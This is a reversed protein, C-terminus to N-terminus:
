TRTNYRACGAGGASDTEGDEKDADELEREIDSFDDLQAGADNQNDQALGAMSGGILLFPAITVALIYPRTKIM